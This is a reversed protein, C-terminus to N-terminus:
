TFSQIHPFVGTLLFPGTVMSFPFCALVPRLGLGFISQIFWEIVHVCVSFRPHADLNLILM